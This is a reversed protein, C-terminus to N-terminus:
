TWLQEMHVHTWSLHMNLCPDCHLFHVSPRLGFGGLKSSSYYVAHGDLVQGLCQAFVRDNKHCAGLCILHLPVQLVKRTDKPHMFFPPKEVVDHGVMIILDAHSIAVHVYDGDSIAATGM